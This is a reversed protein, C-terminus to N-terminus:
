LIDCQQQDITIVHVKWLYVGQDQSASLFFIDNIWKVDTVPRSHGEMVALQEDECWMYV